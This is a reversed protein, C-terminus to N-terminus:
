PWGKFPILFQCGNPHLNAQKRSIVCCAAGGYSAIALSLLVSINLSTYLMTFSIHEPFFPSTKSLCRVFMTPKFELVFFLCCFLTFYFSLIHFPPFSAHPMSMDCCHETNYQVQCSSMNPICSSLNMFSYLFLCSFCKKQLKFWSTIILLEICLFCGFLVPSLPPLVFVLLQISFISFIIFHIDFLYSIIVIYFLFRWFLLFALVGFLLFAFLFRLLVSFFPSLCLFCIRWFFYYPLHDVRWKQCWNLRLNSVLVVEWLTAM